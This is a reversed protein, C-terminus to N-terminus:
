LELGLVGGLERLTAGSSRELVRIAAPTNLDHSLAEAFRERADLAASDPARAATELREALRAAEALASASWEWVERYHHGLLYLRIANASHTRLLDRLFVMNGLSKSMKQGDMSVM